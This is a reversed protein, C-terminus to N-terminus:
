NSSESEAGKQGRATFLKGSALNLFRQFGAQTRQNREIAEPPMAEWEMETLLNINTETIGVLVARDALKLLCVSKKPALYAQEIIQITTGKNGGIRNGSMKKLIFVTLYIIAIIVVLSIAIRTLSPLVSETLSPMPSGAVEATDVQATAPPPLAAEEQSAAMSGIVTLMVLLALRISKKGKM